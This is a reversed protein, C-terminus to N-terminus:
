RLKILPTFVDDRGSTEVLVIESTIKMGAKILSTVESENAAM